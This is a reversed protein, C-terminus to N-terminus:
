TSYLENEYIAFLQHDGHKCWKEFTDMRFDNYNQLKDYQEELPRNFVADTMQKHQTFTQFINCPCLEQKCQWCLINGDGFENCQICVFKNCKTCNRIPNRYDNDDRTIYETNCKNCYFICKHQKNNYCRKCFLKHCNSCKNTYKIIHHYCDYMYHCYACKFKDFLMKTGLQLMKAEVDFSFCQQIVVKNSTIYPLIMKSIIYSPFQLKLHNIITNEMIIYHQLNFPENITCILFPICLKQKKKPLAHIEEIVDNMDTLKRKKSAMKLENLLAM